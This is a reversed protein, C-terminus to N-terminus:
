PPPVANTRAHPMEITEDVDTSTSRSRSYEMAGPDTDPLQPGAYMVALEALATSEDNGFGSVATFRLQSATITDSFTIRQPAWTSALQGRNAESWKQGDASTEIVFDRTDGLHDRDNQRPMLLVGKMPVAAPFRVTLTHPHKTGSAGRGTGGSTWSTNPDGDIAADANGGDATAIAGLKHMIRTDFLLNRIEAAAIVTRPEFGPSAMYDLLSRRLQRAVPRDRLDGNLDFACVM